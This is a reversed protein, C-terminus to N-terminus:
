AVQLWALPETHRGCSSVEGNGQQQGDRPVIWARRTKSARKAIADKRWRRAHVRACVYHLPMQGNKMLPDVRPRGISAHQARWDQMCFRQDVSSQSSLEVWALGNERGFVHSTSPITM